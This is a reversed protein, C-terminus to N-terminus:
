VGRSLGPLYFHVCFEMLNFDRSIGLLIRLEWVAFGSPVKESASDKYASNRVIGLSENNVVQNFPQSKVPTGRDYSVAM